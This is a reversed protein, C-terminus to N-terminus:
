SVSKLAKRQSSNAKVLTSISDSHTKSRTIHTHVAASSQVSADRNGQVYQSNQYQMYEKVILHHQENVEQKQEDWRVVSLGCELLMTHEREWSEFDLALWTGTKAAWYSRVRDFNLRRLTLRGDGGM